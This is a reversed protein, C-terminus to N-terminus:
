RVDPPHLYQPSFPFPFPPLYIKKYSQRSFVEVFWLLPPPGEIDNKKFVRFFALNSKYFPEGGKKKAKNELQSKTAFVTSVLVLITPCRNMKQLLVMQSSFFCGGYRGGVYVVGQSSSPTSSFWLLGRLLSRKTIKKKSKPCVLGCFFITCVGKPRLCRCKPPFAISTILYEGERSHDTYRFCANHKRTQPQRSSTRQQRARCLSLPSAIRQLTCVQAFFDDRVNPTVLSMESLTAQGEQLGSVTMMVAGMNELNSEFQRLYRAFEADGAQQLRALQVAPIGM